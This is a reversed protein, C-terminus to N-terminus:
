SVLVHPYSKCSVKHFNTGYSTAYQNIPDLKGFARYEPCAMAVGAWAADVHLWISPHAKVISLRTLIHPSIVQFGALQSVSKM